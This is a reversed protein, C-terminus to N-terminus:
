AGQPPRYVYRFYGWAAVSLVGFGIFFGVAVAVAEGRVEFLYDVGPHLLIHVFAFGAIAFLAIWVSRRWAWVYNGRLFRLPLLEVLLGELGGIFIVALVTTAFLSLLPSGALAQEVGPLLVWAGLAMALILVCTLTVAIGASRRPLARDFAWFAILGYMYGPQFEAMRSVLVCALAILITLPLVRVLGRELNVRRQVLVIPYEFAATTIALGVVIGAFLALSDADLGFAPDLFGYVVGALLLFIGVGIPGQWFGAVLGRLRAVRKGGRAFWGAIVDYNEEITENFLSAPFLALLLFLAVLLLSFGIAAPDM